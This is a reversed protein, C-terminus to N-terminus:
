RHAPVAPSLNRSIIDEILPHVVTLLRRLDRDDLEIEVVYHPVPVAPRGHHSGADHEHVALKEQFEDAVVKALDLWDAPDISVIGEDSVKPITRSATIRM